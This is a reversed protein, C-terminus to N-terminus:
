FDFTSTKKPKITTKPEEILEEMSDEIPADEIPADEMSDEIPADEVEEPVSMKAMQAAYFAERDIEDTELLTHAGLHIRPYNSLGHKICKAEWMGRTAQGDVGGKWATSNPEKSMNRYSEIQERSFDKYEVSNDIRTIKMWVAIITSSENKRIHEIIGNKKEFVDGEYVLEPGTIYKIISGPRCRLELEGYASVVYKLRPEYVKKEKTGINANRVTMYALAKPVSEISLGNYALDICATFVSTTVVSRLSKDDSMMKKLFGIERQFFVGGTKSGRCTNYMTVFHDRFDSSALLQPITM